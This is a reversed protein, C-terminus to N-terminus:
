RKWAARVLNVCLREFSIGSQKAAKPVLSTATFGPINNGELMFPQGSADIIFDVRLLDRCGAANFFKMAQEAAVAQSQETVSVPPCLYETKGNNYVYKADYDYFGSPSKIEIMPLTQSNVIGVTVEVGSIYKEVLLEDDYELAHEVADDWEAPTEAKFIGVTSGERPPKVIVPFTLNAPLTRNDRTIVGWDPTTIGATQMIKKSSIKDMVAASAVSGCGVFKLNAAELLKQLEGNEGFGGHLVPFVIDAARIEDSLSCELIDVEKVPYGARVLASAVAEGSKLSITRENSCGGKLVVVTPPIAAEKIKNVSAYNVFCVEPNLYFGDREAIKRRVESMLDVINREMAHDRNIIYNAHKESFYADGCSWGKMGCNDILRGAPEEPSVNKFVCGASRGRPERARRDELQHQIHEMEETKEVEPLKFIAATIVIGWPITSCRYGWEIEHGSVAWPNGETDYGCLESVYQGICVGCAGANMRLAGGVTGPIGVLASVGGFGRRACTSVLDSLRVGAGVTVHRRGPQIRIFDNQCLRIILGNFPQDGGVTDTGGGLVFIPVERKHCFRLLHALALDDPPEALIEINGGAGLSTLERWDVNYKLPLTPFANELEEHFQPSQINDM